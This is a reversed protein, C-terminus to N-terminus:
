ELSARKLDNIKLFIPANDAKIEAEFYDTLETYDGRM